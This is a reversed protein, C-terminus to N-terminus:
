IVFNGNKSKFVVYESGGIMVPDGFCFVPMLPFPETPTVPIALLTIGDAEMTLSGRVGRCANALDSDDFLASPEQIPRWGGVGNSDISKIECDGSEIVDEQSEFAKGDNSEPIEEPINELIEAPTNESIDEHVNGGAYAEDRLILFFGFDPELGMAALAIKSFSKKLKLRGSEPAAVGINVYSGGSVGALRLVEDGRYGSDLDFVTMNGSQTITLTGVAAGGRSVSYKGTLTEM